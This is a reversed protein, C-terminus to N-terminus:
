AALAPLPVVTGNGRCGYCPCTATGGAVRHGSCEPDIGSGHCVPCAVFTPALDPIEGLQSLLLAHHTCRGWCRFGRCDCTERTVRHLLTPNSVSTALMEGDLTMRIVIGRQEAQDALRILDETRQRGIRTQTQMDM